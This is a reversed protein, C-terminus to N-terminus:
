KLPTATRTITALCIVGGQVTGNPHDPDPLAIMATDWQINPFDTLRVGRPEVRVDVSTTGGVGDPLTFYARRDPINNYQASVGPAVDGAVQETSDPFEWWNVLQWPHNSPDKPDMYQHLSGPQREYILITLQYKNGGSGTKSHYGKEVELGVASNVVTGAENTCSYRFSYPVQSLPVEVYKIPQSQHAWYWGGSFLVASAVFIMGLARLFNM